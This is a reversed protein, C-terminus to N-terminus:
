FSFQYFIVLQFITRIKHFIIYRLYVIASPKARINKCITSFISVYYWVIINIDICDQIAYVEEHFHQKRFFHHLNQVLCLQQQNKKSVLLQKWHHFVVGTNWRTRRKIEKDKSPFTTEKEWFPHKPHHNILQQSLHKTYAETIFPLQLKQSQITRLAPRRPGRITCLPPRLSESDARLAHM